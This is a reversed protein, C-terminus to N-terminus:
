IQSETRHGLGKYPGSQSFSSHAVIQLQACNLLLHCAFIRSYELNCFALKLEHLKFTDRGSTRRVNTLQKPFIRAIATDIALQSRDKLLSFSISEYRRAEIVLFLDLLSRSRAKILVGISLPM